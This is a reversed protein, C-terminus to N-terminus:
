IAFQARRIKNRSCSSHCQGLTSASADDIGIFAPQFRQHRMWTKAIRDAVPPNKLHLCPQQGAEEESLDVYIWSETCPSRYARSLVSDANGMLPFSASRNCQQKRCLRGSVGAARGDCSARTHPGVVTNRRESCGTAMQAPVASRLM